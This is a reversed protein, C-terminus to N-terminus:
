YEGGNSDLRGKFFESKERLTTGKIKQSRVGTVFTQPECIVYLEKAARTVATYLLERQTM